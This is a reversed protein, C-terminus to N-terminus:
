CKTQVFYEVELTVFHEFCVRTSDNMALNARGIKHISQKLLYRNKLPLRYYSLHIQQDSHNVCGEVVCFNVM